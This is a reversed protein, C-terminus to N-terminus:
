RSPRESSVSIETGLPPISIHRLGGDVVALFVLSPDDLARDFRFAVRTPRGDRDERVTASFGDIAITTGRRLPLSPDRLTATWIGDLLSGTPTSLEFTDPATRRLRHPAPSLSLVTAGLYGLRDPLPLGAGGRARAANIARLQDPDLGLDLARAYQLNFPLLDDLALLVVRAPVPAAIEAERSMRRTIAFLQGFLAVNGAYALPALVVNGAGLVCLGVLALARAHRAQFLRWADRLLAAIVVAGGLSAALLVRAGPLGPTGVLLAAAAGWAFVRVTRAEDRSMRRLAARLWAVIALGSVAGLIALPLMLRGDMAALDIPSAVLLGGALLALREPLARLAGGPDGLPDLYAGTQHVGAGTTRYFALYLVGLALTPALARWRGPRREILEWVVLYSLAAVGMEAAALALAAALPALVRGARWGDTRWRLHAAFALWGLVCAVTANRAAIWVAGLVHAGDLCFIVAALTALGPPLTRRIVAIAILLLAAYWVLTHLHYLAATRGFLAHDLAMLASSLPRWFALQLGPPAFYPLEGAQRFAAVVARDRPVFAYLDLPGVANVSWRELAAIQLVDDAFFGFGLSPLVLGIALVFAVRQLRQPRELWSRFV